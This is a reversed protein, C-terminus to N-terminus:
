SLFLPVSCPLTYTKIIVKLVTIKWYICSNVKEFFLFLKFVKFWVWEVAVWIALIIQIKMCWLDYIALIIINRTIVILFFEPEFLPISLDCVTAVGSMWKFSFKSVQFMKRVTLFHFQCGEGEKSLLVILFHSMKVWMICSLYKWIGGCATLWILFSRVNHLVEM